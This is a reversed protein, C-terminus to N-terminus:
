EIFVQNLPVQFLKQPSLGGCMGEDGIQELAIAATPVFTRYVYM